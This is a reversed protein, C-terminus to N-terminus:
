NELQLHFYVECAHEIYSLRLFSKPEQIVYLQKFHLLSNFLSTLPALFIYIRDKNYILIQPM